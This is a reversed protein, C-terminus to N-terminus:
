NEFYRLFELESLLDFWINNNRVSLITTYSSKNYDNRIHMDDNVVSLSFALDTRGMSEFMWLVYDNLLMMAEKFIVWPKYEAGYGADVASLVFTALGDFAIDACMTNTPKYYWVKCYGASDSLLTNLASIIEENDANKAKTEFGDASATVTFLLLIALTFSLICFIKKM